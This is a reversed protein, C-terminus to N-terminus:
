RSSEASSIAMFLFLAALFADLMGWANKGRQLQWVALLIFWIVM